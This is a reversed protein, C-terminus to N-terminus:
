ASRCRAFYLRQILTSDVNTEVDHAQQTSETFFSIRHFITLFSLTLPCRYLTSSVIYLVTFAQTLHLPEIVSKMLVVSFSFFPEVLPLLKENKKALVCNNCWPVHFLSVRCLSISESLLIIAQKNDGRNFFFFFFFFFFSPSNHIGGDTLCDGGLDSPPIWDFKSRRKREHYLHELAVNNKWADLWGHMRRGDMVCDVGLGSLPIWVLKSCWKGEHYPHVFAINNKRADTRGDDTWRDMSDERLGSPTFEVLSAVDSEIM